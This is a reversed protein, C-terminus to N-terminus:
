EPLPQGHYCAPYKPCGLFLEGTYRNRRKVLISGCKPCVPQTADVDTFSAVSQSQSQLAPDHRGRPRHPTPALSKSLHVLYNADWVEIPEDSIWAKAPGTLRGTTVLYACHAGSHHMAGLLDRMTKERVSWDVFKKCQIVAREGEKDAIVDIGHDGQGGIVRASWGLDRFRAAVWEEFGKPSLARLEDLTKGAKRDEEQLWFLWCWAAFPFLATGIIFPYNLALHFGTKIDITFGGLIFPHILLGGMWLKTLTLALESAIRRSGKTTRHQRRAPM